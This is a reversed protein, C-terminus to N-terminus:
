RGTMKEVYTDSVQEVHGSVPWERQNNRTRTPSSVTALDYSSSKSVIRQCDTVQRPAAPTSNDPGVAPM